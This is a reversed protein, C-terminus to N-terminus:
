HMSGKFTREKKKGTRQVYRKEKKLDSKKLWLYNKLCQATKLDSLMLLKLYQRLDSNKTCHWHKKTVKLLKWNM